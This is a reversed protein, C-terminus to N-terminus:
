RRCSCSFGNILDNCTGPSFSGHGMRNVCVNIEDCEKNNSISVAEFGAEWDYTYDLEMSVFVTTVVHLHTSVGTLTEANVLPSTVVTKLTIPKFVETVM